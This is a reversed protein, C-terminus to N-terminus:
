ISMPSKLIKEMDLPFQVEGALSNFETGHGPVGDFESEALFFQQSFDAIGVDRFLKEELIGEPVSGKFLTDSSIVDAEGDPIIGGAASRGKKVETIQWCDIGAIRDDAPFDDIRFQNRYKLLAPVAFGSKRQNDCRLQLFLFIGAAIKAVPM